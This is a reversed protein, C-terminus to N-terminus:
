VVDLEAVINLFQDVIARSGATIVCTSGEGEIIAPGKIEM